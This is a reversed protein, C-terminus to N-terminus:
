GSQIPNQRLGAEVPTRQYRIEGARGFGKFDGPGILEPHGVAHASGRQRVFVMRRNSRMQQREQIIAAPQTGVGLIIGGFTQFVKEIQELMSYLRSTQRVLKVGVVSRQEDALMQLGNASVEADAQDVGLGVRGPALPLNFSKKGRDLTIKFLAQHKRRRFVQGFKVLAEPRPQFGVIMLSRMLAQFTLTGSLTKVAM